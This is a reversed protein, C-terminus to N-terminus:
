AVTRYRHNNTGDVGKFMNYVRIALVLQLKKLCIPNFKHKTVEWMEFLNTTCFSLSAFM